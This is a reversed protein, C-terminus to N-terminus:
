KTQEILWNILVAVIDNLNEETANLSLGVRLHKGSKSLGVSSDQYDGFTVTIQYDVPLDTSTASVTGLLSQLIQHTEFLRQRAGDFLAFLQKVVDPVLENSDIPEHYKLRDTGYTEPNYEIAPVKVLMGISLYKLVHVNM